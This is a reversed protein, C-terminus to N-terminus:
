GRIGPKEARELQAAVRLLIDERGLDAVVQVGVPLGDRSWHVPLSIAPQGTFSFPMTFLGFADRLVESRKEGISVCPQATVPTVLLDFGERWWALVGSAGVVLRQRAEHVQVASYKRGEEARAWTGPEVGERRIVRGTIESWADLTAATSSAGIIRLGLGLGTVGDLQRPYAYEVHHGCAELQRGTKEVAEVCEPHIELPFFPHHVLLGVRLPDPEMTLAEIYPRDPPLAFYRDGPMRGAVADLIAAADRLSRALVFEVINEMLGASRSPGISVRGRSPKLGVLGCLSAPIRISGTGDNGHAVAVMRSAVAAASGGSSGGPTYQPNWPNRTPGFAEPETVPGGALEPLNTKGLFIFGAERFKRALYTDKASTWRLDRLFKMGAYYPDGATECLFDKLLLPVGRFPGNPLRESVAQARAKDFLPTIVANLPPNLREIQGIASEVLELSSVEGRRVFDAQATADLEHIEPM